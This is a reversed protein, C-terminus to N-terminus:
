VVQLGKKGVTVSLYTNRQTSFLLHLSTTFYVKIAKRGEIFYGADSHQIGFIIAPYQYITLLM